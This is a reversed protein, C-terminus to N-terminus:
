RRRGVEVRAPPQVHDVLPADLPAALDHAHIEAGAALRDDGPQRRPPGVRPPPGVIGGGPPGESSAARGPRGSRAPRAVALWGPTSIPLPWTPAARWGASRGAARGRRASGGALPGPGRPRRCAGPSWSGGDRLWPGGSAGTRCSSAASGLWGDSCWCLSSRAAPSALSNAAPLQLGCPSWMGVWRGVRVSCCCSPSCCPLGVCPDSGVWSLAVM